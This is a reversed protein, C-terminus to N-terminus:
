WPTTFNYMLYLFIPDKCIQLFEWRFYLSNEVILNYYKSCFCSFGVRWRLLFKMNGYICYIKSQVVHLRRSFICSVFQVVTSSYFSVVDCLRFFWLLFILIGKCQKELSEASDSPFLKNWAIASISTDSNDEALRPCVWCKWQMGLWEIFKDKIKM